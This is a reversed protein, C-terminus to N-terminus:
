GIRTKEGCAPHILHPTQCLISLSEVYADNVLYKQIAEHRIGVKLHLRLAKKRGTKSCSIDVIYWTTSGFAPLSDKRGVLFTVTAKPAMFAGMDDEREAYKAYVRSLVSCGSSFIRDLEFHTKDTEAVARQIDAWCDGASEIRHFLIRRLVGSLLESDIHDMRREPAQRLRERLRLMVDSNNIAAYTAKVREVITGSGRPSQAETRDSGYTAIKRLEGHVADVWDDTDPSKSMGMHRSLRRTGKQAAEM